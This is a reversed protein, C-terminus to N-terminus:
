GCEDARHFLTPVPDGTHVLTVTGVGLLGLSDRDTHVHHRLVEQQLVVGFPEVQKVDTRPVQPKKRLCTVGGGEGGM